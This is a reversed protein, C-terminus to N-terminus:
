VRGRLQRAGIDRSPRWEAHHHEKARARWARKAERLASMVQRSAQEATQAAARLQETSRRGGIMLSLSWLGTDLLRAARELDADVLELLDTGSKAVSINRMLSDYSLETLSVLARAATRPEPDSADVSLDDALVEAVASVMRHRHDGWAARLTPTQELMEGFRPIVDRAQEFEDEALSLEAIQRRLEDLYARIPTTGRARESVARLAGALQEDTRDFFLSEKTPFYNYVTKESVGAHEAIDAVRVTDFGQDLFMETALDSIRQRTELKKRERLGLKAPVGAPEAAM